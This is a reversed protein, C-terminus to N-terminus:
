ETPHLFIALPVANGWFNDEFDKSTSIIGESQVFIIPLALGVQLTFKIFSLYCLRIRM